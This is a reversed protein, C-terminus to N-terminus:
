GGATRATGGAPPHGPLPPAPPGGASSLPLGVAPIRPGPSTLPLAPGLRSRQPAPTNIKGRPNSPQQLRVGSTGLLHFKQCGQHPLHPPAPPRPLARAHAGKPLNGERPPCEGNRAFGLKTTQGWPARQARCGEQLQHGLCLGGGGPWRAMQGGEGGGKRPCSPQAARGPPIGPRPLPIGKERSGGPAKSLHNMQLAPHGPPPLRAM